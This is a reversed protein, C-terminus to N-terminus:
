PEGDGLLVLEHFGHFYDVRRICGTPLHMVLDGDQLISNDAGIQIGKDFLEGALGTGWIDVPLAYLAPLRRVYPGAAGSLFRVRAAPQTVLAQFVPRMSVLVVFPVPM